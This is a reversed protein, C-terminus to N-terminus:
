KKNRKAAAKRRAATRSEALDGRRSAANTYGQGVTTRRSDPRFKKNKKEETVTMTTGYPGMVETTFTTRKSKPSHKGGKTSTVARGVKEARGRAQSGTKKAQKDLYMYTGEQVPKASDSKKKASTKKTAM